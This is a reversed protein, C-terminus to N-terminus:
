VDKTGYYKKSMKPRGEEDYEFSYDSINKKKKLKRFWVVILDYWRDM